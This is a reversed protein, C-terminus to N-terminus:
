TRGPSTYKEKWNSVCQDYNMALHPVFFSFNHSRAVKRLQERRMEYLFRGHFFWESLASDFVQSVHQEKTLAGEGVLASAHMTHLSKFISTEDLAAVYLKLAPCWISTRKLFAAKEDDVYPVSAANKDAMTYVIGVACFVSAISTHNFNDYGVKVSMKCDDGYSMMSVVNHFLPPNIVLEYYACRHYLSNVLSNTYVTLNQGSPNGCMFQMLEGNFDIMPFAVDTAVNQMITLSRNDYGSMRAIHIFIKFSLLVMHAPMKLDYTKFDGAVVRKKGYKLLHNHLKHWEPSHCNIGVACEFIESRISIERCIPLFYRRLILQLAIPAAQFVRVKDKTIVTPEDKLCGKFVPYARKGQLYLLEMDDAEDWFQQSLVRVCSQSKDNPVFTLFNSKSKNIPFGCSTSPKMADLFKVGDKGNIISQNDLPTLTTYTYQQDIKGIFDNYAFELVDHPFGIAPDVTSALSAQWPAWRPYFNPKGWKNPVGCALAIDPSVFTEIIDSKMPGGCIPHSGFNILSAPLGNPIHLSPSSDRIVGNPTYDIGYKTTKLEGEDSVQFYVEKHTISECVEKLKESSIHLGFGSSGDVYGASHLGVIIPNKHDTIYAGGCMGKTWTFSDNVVKFVNKLTKGEVELTIPDSIGCLEMIEERKCKTVFYVQTQSFIHDNFYPTLDKYSGAAPVYIMVVDDNIEHCDSAQLWFKFNCGIINFNRVATVYTRTKPVFHKPILMLGSKLMLGNLKLGPYSITFVNFLVMTSLEKSNISRSLSSYKIKTPHITAWVNPTNPDVISEGEALGVAEPKIIKPFFTYFLKRLIVLGLFVKLCALPKIDKRAKEYIDLLSIASLQEFNYCYKFYSLFFFPIIILILVPCIFMLLTCASIFVMGSIGFSLYITYLKFYWNDKFPNKIVVRELFSGAGQFELCTSCYAAFFGHECLSEKYTVNTKDVFKKQMVYHEASRLKVLKMLDMPSVDLMPVGDMLIPRFEFANSKQMSDLKVAEYLSLEYVDIDNDLEDYAKRPDLMDSHEFQCDKKIKVEVHIDFRRLVSLPENSYINADLDRVNTTGIVVKPQIPIKGKLHAEPSLAHTRINNIFDIIVSCPSKPAFTSTSNAIDDLIVGVHFPRYESQFADSLNLVVVNTDDHPLDNSQLIFNMMVHCLKSKSVGSKGYLLLSYPMTRIGGTARLLQFNAQIQMLKQLKSALINKRNSNKVTGLMTQVENMCNNLRIDFEQEDSVGIESLRGCELYPLASILFAYEAEFRVLPANNFILPDFSWSQFCAYGKEVFFNITEICSSIFDPFSEHEREAASAFLDLSKYCFPLNAANCLGTSVCLSIIRRIHDMVEKSKISEWHNPLDKLYSFINFDEGGQFQPLSLHFYKILHDYTLTSFNKQSFTKLYLGIACFVGTWTECDQVVKIFMLSNEIISVTRQDFTSSLVASIEDLPSLGQFVIKHRDHSININGQPHDRHADGRLTNVCVKRWLTPTVLAQCSRSKYILANYKKIGALKSALGVRCLLNSCVFSIRNTFPDNPEGLWRHRVTSEEGVLEVVPNITYQYSKEVM